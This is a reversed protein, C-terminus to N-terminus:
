HPEQSIWMGRRPEGPGPGIYWSFGREYDRVACTLLCIVLIINVFLVKDTTSDIYTAILKTIILFSQLDFYNEQFIWIICM